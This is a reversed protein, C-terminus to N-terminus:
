ENNPICSYFGHVFYGQNTTSSVPTPATTDGPNGPSVPLSDFDTKNTGQIGFCPSWPAVNTLTTNNPFAGMTIDVLSDTTYSQQGNALNGLFGALNLPICNGTGGPGCVSNTWPAAGGANACYPSAPDGNCLNQYVTTPNDTCQGYPNYVEVFCAGVNITTDAPCSLTVPQNLVNTDDGTTIAAFPIYKTAAQNTENNYGLWASFILVGILLLFIFSYMFILWGEM